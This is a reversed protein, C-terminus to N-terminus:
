EPVTTNSHVPDGFQSRPTETEVEFDIITSVAIEDVINTRVNTDLIAQAQLSTATIITTDAVEGDPSPPFNGPVDVWLQVVGIEDSGLTLETP